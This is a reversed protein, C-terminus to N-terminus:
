IASPTFDRSAGWRTELRQFLVSCVFCLVFYMAAVLIWVEFLRGTSNAVEGALFTLEQISILSVIASTKILSIFQGALPPLIRRVAQPLVIYRAVEYRSLGLSQGAERQGKSVSQIGARVIETIYAAEFMAVCLLGALFNAFLKPSGALFEIAALTAPSADRVINEAHLVTILPSSIFYYFIFMFVLPPLNRILEVYTRSILRPLLRESTRCLGLVFGIIASLIIGWLALRITTLFGQVLLNAVWTQHEEDWRFLFPWIRGWDWKYQLVSNVRYFIFALLAALVVFVVVDLARLRLGGRQSRRRKGAALLRAHSDGSSTPNQELATQRDATMAILEARGSGGM